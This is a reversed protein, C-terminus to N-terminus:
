REVVCVKYPKTTHVIGLEGLLEPLPEGPPNKFSFKQLLGAVAIFLEHKALAEGLCVRRGAGFPLFSMIGGAHIFQGDSDLFRTPDFVEPSKWEKDDYHMAWFNFLVSTGKPVKYDALTTDKIAKHPVSLAAVSSARLTEAITAEIYPLRDKDDWGPTVDRGIVDDLESQCRAQVHPNHIMFVIFWLITHTTTEFGVSFADAMTMVVHDQTIQGHIKSDEKVADQLAKILADTLDRITGEQYTEQHELFKRDLFADRTKRVWRITRSDKIPVNILLPCINLPSLPLFLPFMKQNYEVIMLFEPDDIEYRGGFVMACIVNMTALFVDKTPDIPIGKYSRFRKSLEEVEKKVKGGLIPNYMRFASHVIKRQLVWTPSFDGIGIDKSGRTLYDLTFQYPRGAFDDKNAQLAQRTIPASNVIITRQGPIDLTFVSGYQKSARTLEVQLQKKLMWPAVQLLNGLIPLPRPGPPM